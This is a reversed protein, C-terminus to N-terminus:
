VPREIIEKEDPNRVLIKCEGGEEVGWMQYM